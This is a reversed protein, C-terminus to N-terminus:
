LNSQECSCALGASGRPAAGNRRTGVPAAAFGERLFGLARPAHLSAAPSRAPAREGCGGLMEWVGYDRAGRSGGYRGVGVWGSIPVFERSSEPTGTGGLGVAAGRFGGASGRQAAAAPRSRGAGTRGQSGEGSDSGSEGARNLGTPFRLGGRSRTGRLERAAGKQKGPTPPPVSLGSGPVAGAASCRSLEKPHTQGM